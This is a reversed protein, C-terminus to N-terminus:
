RSLRNGRAVDVDGWSRMTWVELDHVTPWERSPQSSSAPSTSRRLECIALLITSERSRTRTRPWVSTCAASIEPLISTSARDWTATSSCQATPSPTTGNLPTPSRSRVSGASATARRPPARTPRRIAWPSSPRCSDSRSSGNRRGGRALEAHVVIRVAARGGTHLRRHRRGCALRRYLAWRPVPEEGRDEVLGARPLLGALADRDRTPDRAGADPYKGRLLPFPHWRTRGRTTARAKVDRALRGTGEFVATFWHAIWTDPNLLNAISEEIDLGSAMNMVNKVTAQEWHTGRLEPVYTPVPKDPDVKGEDILMAMLLGVTTKAASMWIHSDTPNMGPFIEFVVKGKHAMMMAQVQRKGVLYERLPPTTTGDHATFTLDLVTPDISRELRSFEDSPPVYSCNFFEPINLNYYISQESGSQWNPFSYDQRAQEIFEASQPQKWKAMPSDVELPEFGSAGVREPSPVAQIENSSM